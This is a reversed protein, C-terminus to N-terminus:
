HPPADQDRLRTWGMHHHTREVPPLQGTRYHARSGLHSSGPATTRGAGWTPAARHLLAGQE